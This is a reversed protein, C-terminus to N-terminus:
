LKTILHFPYCRYITKVELEQTDILQIAEGVGEVFYDKEAEISTVTGAFNIKMGNSLAVGDATTYNKGIIENSVDITSKEEIAYIQIM